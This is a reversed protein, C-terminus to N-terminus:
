FTSISNVSLEGINKVQYEFIALFFDEVNGSSNQLISGDTLGDDYVLKVPGVSSRRLFFPEFTIQRNQDV